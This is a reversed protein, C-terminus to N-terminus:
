ILTSELINNANLLGNLKHIFCCCFRGSHSLKKMYKVLKEYVNLAWKLYWVNLVIFTNMVM